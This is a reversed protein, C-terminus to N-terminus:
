CLGSPVPGRSGPLVRPSRATRSARPQEDWPFWGQEQPRLAWRVPLCPAAPRGAGRPDFSTMPERLITVFMKAGPVHSVRPFVGPVTPDGAPHGPTGWGPRQRRRANCLLGQGARGVAGSGRGGDGPDEPTHGSHGAAPERPVLSCSGQPWRAVDDGRDPSAGPPTRPCWGHASRWLSSPGPPRRGPGPPRREQHVRFLRSGADGAGARRRM